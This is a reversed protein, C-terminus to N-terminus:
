AAVEVHEGEGVVGWGAVVAGQVGGEERGVAVVDLPAVHVIGRQGRVLHERARVHVQPGYRALEVVQVARVLPQPQDARQRLPPRQIALQALKLVRMM